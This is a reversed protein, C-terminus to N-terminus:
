KSALSKNLVFDFQKIKKYLLTPSIEFQNCIDDIKMNKICYMEELTEKNFGKLNLRQDKIYEHSFSFKRMVTMITDYHCGYHIAIDTIDMGNVVSLHYIDDRTITSSDILVKRNKIRNHDETSILKNKMILYLDSYLYSQRFISDLKISDDTNLRFGHVKGYSWHIKMEINFKENVYDLIYNSEELSFRTASISYRCGQIFGDDLYWILLSTANLNDLVDVLSYNRYESIVPLHRTYFWYLKQKNKADKGVTKNKLEDIKCLSKLIRFKYSLYDIQDEAHSVAFHHYTTQKPKTICGDGLISGIIVDHQVENLNYSQYQLDKNIGVKRLWYKLIGTNIGVEREIEKLTMKKEIYYTNFLGNFYTYKENNSLTKIEIKNVEM